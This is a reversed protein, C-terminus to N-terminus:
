ASPASVPPVAANVFGYPGFPSNVPESYQDDSSSKRLRDGTGMRCAPLDADVGLTVPRDVPDEVRVLRRERCVRSVVVAVPDLM